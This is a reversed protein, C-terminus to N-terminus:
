RIVLPLYISPMDPPDFTVEYAGMNVTATGDGDGDQPRSDGNLDEAPAVSNDGADVCPSSSRLRHDTASVFLPDVSIAHDGIPNAVSYLGHWGYVNNYDLQDILGTNSESIGVSNSAGLTSVVINNYVIINNALLNNVSLGFAWMGEGDTGDMGYAGIIGNSGTLDGSGALGGDGGSGGPAGLGGTEQASADVLTNNIVEGDTIFIILLYTNTGPKSGGGGDGGSGGDGGDGASGGSGAGMDGGDGGDGGAGGSTGDNAQSGVVDWVDNNILATNQDV